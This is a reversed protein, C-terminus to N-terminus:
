VESSVAHTLADACEEISTKLPHRIRAGHGMRECASPRTPGPISLVLGTRARCPQPDLAAGIEMLAHWMEPNAGRKVHM